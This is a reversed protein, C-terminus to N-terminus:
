KVARGTIFGVFGGVLITVLGQGWERTADSESGIGIVLAALIILVLFSGVANVVRRSQANDKREENLRHELEKDARASEARAGSFSQERVVNSSRQGHHTM